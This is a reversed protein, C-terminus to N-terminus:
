RRVQENKVRREERKKGREDVFQMEHYILEGIVFMVAGVSGIIYLVTKQWENIAFIDIVTDAVILAMESVVIIFGIWFLVQSWRYFWVLVGERASERKQARCQTENMWVRSKGIESEAATFTDTTKISKEAVPLVASMNETKATENKRVERRQYFKM